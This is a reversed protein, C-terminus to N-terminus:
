RVRINQEVSCYCQQPSSLSYWWTQFSRFFTWYVCGKTLPRANGEHQHVPNCHLVRNCVCQLWLAAPELRSRAEIHERLYRVEPFTKLGFSYLVLKGWHVWLVRFFRFRFTWSMSLLTAFFIFCVLGSFGLITVYDHM